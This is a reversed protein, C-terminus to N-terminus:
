LFNILVMNDKPVSYIEITNSLLKCDLIRYILTFYKQPVTIEMTSYTTWCIDIDSKNIFENTNQYVLNILENQLNMINNIDKYDM